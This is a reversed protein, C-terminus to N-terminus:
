NAGKLIGERNRQARAEWDERTHFTKAFAALQERAAEESQHPHDSKAHAMACLAGVLVLSLPVKM